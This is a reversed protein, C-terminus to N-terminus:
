IAHLLLDKYHYNGIKPNGYMKALKKTANIEEKELTEKEDTDMDLKLQGPFDGYKSVMEFDDHYKSIFISKAMNIEPLTYIAIPLLKKLILPVRESHVFLDTRYFMVDFKHYRKRKSLDEERKDWSFLLSVPLTTKM